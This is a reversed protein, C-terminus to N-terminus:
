SPPPPIDIKRGSIVEFLMMNGAIIMGISVIFAVIGVLLSVLVAFGFEIHDLDPHTWEVNFLWYYPYFPASFAYWCDITFFSLLIRHFLIALVAMVALWALMERMEQKKRCSM